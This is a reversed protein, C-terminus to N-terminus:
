LLITSIAAKARIQRGDSMILDVASDREQISSVVTNFIRDGSYDNLIANAFSTMGGKGLKYIGVCELFLTMTHGSLAYWRLFEVFATGEGPAGGMTNTYTEFYDRDSQPIDTLQDLRQKITMHDYDRWPAPQRLPDHPYPMLTRSDHGDIQFFRAAINNLQKADVTAVQIAGGNPKYFM